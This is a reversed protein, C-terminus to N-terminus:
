WELPDCEFDIEKSKLYESIEEIITPTHKKFISLISGKTNHKKTHIEMRVVNEKDLNNIRNYEERLLNETAFRETFTVFSLNKCRPDLLSPLLLKPITLNSWYYNIANYLNSKIKDIDINIPTYAQEDEEEDYSTDDFIDQDDNDYNNIDEIEIDDTPQYRNKLDILIPVLVSYTCYNSAGLYNTAEYFPQLIKVLENITIWESDTLLIKKLYKFDKKTNSDSKTSLLNVLLNIHDKLKLLQNASSLDGKSMVFEELDMDNSLIM